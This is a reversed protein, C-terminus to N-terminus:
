GFYAKGQRWVSNGVLWWEGVVSCTWISTAGRRRQAWAQCLRPGWTCRRLASLRSASTIAVTRKMFSPFCHLALKYIVMCKYTVQLRGLLRLLLCVHQLNVLKLKLCAKAIHRVAGIVEKHKEESDAEFVLKRKSQHRSAYNPTPTRSCISANARRTRVPQPSDTPEGLESMASSMSARNQGFRQRVPQPSTKCEASASSVGAYTRPVNSAACSRRGSGIDSCQPSRRVPQPSDSRM